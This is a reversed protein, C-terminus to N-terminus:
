SVTLEEDSYLIELRDVVEAAEDVVYTGPQELYRRAWDHALLSRLLFVPRAHKLALRPQMMSGSRGDTAEVVVTARAFGSMVANRLPFTWPRAEQDPLFHSMVATEEALRRQLRANSPPASHHLGTGLVAVTRGGAELTATHAATDIGRALGSVVVYSADM